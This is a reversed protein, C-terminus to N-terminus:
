KATGGKLLQDYCGLDPPKVYLEPLNKIGTWYMRPLSHEQTSFGDLLARIGDYHYVSCDMAMKLIEDVVEAGNSSRLKLIKIFELNAKETKQRLITLYQQYIDPLDAQKLAKAHNVAYPKRELVDLYHTVDLIDQGQEYSRSHTAILQDEYFIRVENVYGKIHVRCRAYRSPVSYRNNDFRVTSEKSAKAPVLVCCDFPYRPLPLLMEKEQEFVEQITKKTHPVTRTRRLKALEDLIHQNLEEITDVEPVPVLIKRRLYGIEHEIQGKENGRGVNCFDAEFLYHTRFAIFAEQEKRNKGQLVRAVATKLNDYVITRPIGGFYEFARRHGEFFAEQRTTLFAMMFPARSGSLKMVFLYVKQRKGKLISEAEGWDVQAHSGLEFELPIFVEQKEGGLRNKIIRVYRRITSYAGTYGYEECLREYIRLATHRQKPPRKMDEVLWQTIIELYPGVVPKEKEVTLKYKPITPVEEAIVKRIYQRSHGTERSIKRISQGEILHRKRIDEKSAMGIM